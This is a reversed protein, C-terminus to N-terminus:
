CCDKSLKKVLILKVLSFCNSRWKAAAQAARRDWPIRCRAEKTAGCVNLAWQENKRKKESCKKDDEIIQWSKYAICNEDQRALQHM